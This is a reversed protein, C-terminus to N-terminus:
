RSKVCYNGSNFWGLPCTNGVKQIAERAAGSTPPVCYSGSSYYGLPCSGVKPLPQAHPDARAVTALLAVFAALLLHHLNRM